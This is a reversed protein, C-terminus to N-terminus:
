YLTKLVLSYIYHMFYLCYYINNFHELHLAFDKIENRSVYFVLIVPFPTCYMIYLFLWLDNILLLILMIEGSINLEEQIVKGLRDLPTQPANSHFVKFTQVYEPPLLYELSGIHQGIKIYCGGNKRCM